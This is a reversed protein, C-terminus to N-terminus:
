WPWEWPWDWAPTTALAALVAALGALLLLLPWGLGVAPRQLATVAQADVLRGGARLRVALASASAQRDRDLLDDYSAPAGALVIVDAGHDAALLVAVDTASFGEPCEERPIRAAHRDAKAPLDGPDGVALDPRLGAAALAASGADAGVLVPRREAVYGRLRRVETAAQEGPAVVLVHRGELPVGPDPLGAGELLLAEHQRVVAATDGGVSELRSGMGDRAAAEAAAVDQETRVTGRALSTEGAFLEGDDLRVVQGDRVASLLAVGVDDVLPVGAAVLAAAGHAPHRGSLSPRVNVVAAVGAGVLAEASTRDLDLHDVVAVDGPQLRRALARTAYAADHRAPDPRALRAPGSVGPLGPAVPPRRTLRM